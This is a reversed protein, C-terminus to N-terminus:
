SLLFGSSRSRCYRITPLLAAVEAFNVGAARRRGRFDIKLIKEYIKDKKIGFPHPPSRFAGANRKLNLYFRFGHFQILDKKLGEPNENWGPPLRACCAQRRGRFDGGERQSPPRPSPCSFSCRIPSCSLFRFHMFCRMIEPNKLVILLSNWPNLYLLVAFSKRTMRQKTEHSVISLHNQQM